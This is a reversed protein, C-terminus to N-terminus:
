LGKFLIYIAYIEIMLFFVLGLIGQFIAWEGKINTSGYKPIEKRVIVFACGLIFWPVSLIIVINLYKDSMVGHNIGVCIASGTFLVLVGITWLGYTLFGTGTLFAKL